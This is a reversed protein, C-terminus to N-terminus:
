QRPAVHGRLSSGSARSRDGGAVVRSVWARQVGGVRRVKGGQQPLEARRQQDGGVLGALQDHDAVLSVMEIGMVAGKRRGHAQGEGLTAALESQAGGKLDALEAVVTVDGASQLGSPSM